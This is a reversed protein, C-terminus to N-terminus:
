CSNWALRKQRASKASKSHVRSRNVPLPTRRAPMSCCRKYTNYGRRFYGTLKSAGAMKSNTADLRPRLQQVDCRDQGGIDPAAYAQDFAWYVSQAYNSCQFYNGASGVTGSGSWYVNPNSVYTGNAGQGPPHWGSGCAPGTGNAANYSPDNADKAPIEWLIPDVGSINTPTGATQGFFFSASRGYSVRVSDHRSLQYSLAFRPEIVRPYLYVTPLQAYGTGIDATNSLDKNLLPNGAWKLNQGDM